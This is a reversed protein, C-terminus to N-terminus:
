ETAPLESDSLTVFHLASARDSAPRQCPAPLVAQWWTVLVAVVAAGDPSRATFQLHKFVRLHILRYWSEGCKLRTERSLHRWLRPSRGPVPSSEGPRIKPHQTAPNRIVSCLVADSCCQEAQQLWQLARGLTEWEYGLAANGGRSWGGSELKLWEEWGRNVCSGASRRSCSRRRESCRRPNLIACRLRDM